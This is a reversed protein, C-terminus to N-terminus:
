RTRSPMVASTRWGSRAFVSTISTRPSSLVREYRQQDAVWLGSLLSAHALWSSGGFTPSTLFGSRADYGAAVLEDSGSDLLTRVSEMDTGELAARGYSEVFVVLVDQGRLAQLDSERPAQFADQTVAREFRRQDAVADVSSQVKDVALRAADVSAVPQDPAARVGTTAAFVWLASLAAVVRAVGRRHRTLAGTLRVMALPVGVLTAGTFLVAALVAGRAAWPGSSERVFDLGSGLLAHDTVITFPRDLVAFFGLDLVKLLALVALLAGAVAAVGTALRPSRLSAALVLAILVLAEGPIRLFSLPLVHDPRQPSLLAFWVLAVAALTALVIGVARARGSVRAVSTENRRRWLWAVDRGFSEALLVMAVVLLGVRVGKPVAEVLATVLAIGVVATVVKRWYRYPLPARMWPRVLGALAFLYRALGAAVVWWGVISGVAVSLVLILFADVEGDFRAGFRTATGTRRAVLGDVADLALAPGALALVATTVSAGGLLEATLAAVGCTMVARALTVLDAPGLAGSGAGAPDGRLTRALVAALAAGCGVGVAVAISGFGVSAWLVLTLAVTATGALVTAAVPGVRPPTRRDPSPDIHAYAGEAAGVGEVAGVDAEEVDAVEVGAAPRAAGTDSRPVAPGSM